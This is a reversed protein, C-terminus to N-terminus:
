KEVSITGDINLPKQWECNEVKINESNYAAIGYKWGPLDNWRIRVRHFRVNKAHGLYFAGESQTKGWEGYPGALDDSHPVYSGICELEVDEFSINDIGTGASGSVSIHKSFTGRIQRFHLNRIMKAAPEPRAGNVDTLIHLPNQVNMQMNSFSINEIQVGTDPNSLYNSVIAIGTRTKHFVINSFVADRVIGNGVGIRIANCNTHLVCNSVTILECPRKNKLAANSGRLTICDDGSDIICDSVTVRCCCDIDLGDGNFTRQDNLIRLGRVQVDECGHLFCTWYPANHLKLDTININKCEVFFIMQAPRWIRFLEEASFKGPIEDCTPETKDGYFAQRNGDIKGFGSLTVNEQEVATIFHAGSVYERSFVRNQQCFDDPNYDEKDPSAKLVAGTELHLGGNSKLYLTGSLYTGPPFYVIGGEDIARQIAATDKTIGDGVAGFDKVSRM